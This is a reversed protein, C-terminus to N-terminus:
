QESFLYSLSCGGNNGIIAGFNIVIGLKTKQKQM